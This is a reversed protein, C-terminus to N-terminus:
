ILIAFCSGNVSLLCVIFSLLCSCFRVCLCIYSQMYAPICGREHECVYLSIYMCMLSIGLAYVCTYLIKHINMIKAQLQSLIINQICYCCFLMIYTHTYIYIYTQSQISIYLYLSTHLIYIDKMKLKFKYTKQAYMKYWLVQLYM